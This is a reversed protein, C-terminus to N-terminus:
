KGFSDGKLGYGTDPNNIGALNYMVTDLDPCIYFGLYEFDYEEGIQYIPHDYHVNILFVKGFQIKCIKCKLNKDKFSTSNQWKLAKVIIRNNYCDMVTINGPTPCDVEIIQFNCIEGVKYRPHSPEFYDENTSVVNILEGDIEAGISINYNSYASKQLWYENQNETVVIFHSESIKTCIAKM